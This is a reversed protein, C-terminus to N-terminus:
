PVNISDIAVDVEANHSDSVTRVNGRAGNLAGANRGHAGNPISGNVIAADNRAITAHWRTGNGHGGGLAVNNQVAVAVFAGNGAIGQLHGVLDDWGLAQIAVHANAIRFTEIGDRILYKLRTYATVRENFNWGAWDGESADIHAQIAVANPLARLGNQTEFLVIYANWRQAENSLVAGEGNGHPYIRRQVPALGFAGELRRRQAALLPSADMPHPPQLTGAAEAAISRQAVQHRASEQHTRIM